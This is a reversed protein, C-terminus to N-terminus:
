EGVDDQAISTKLYEIFIIFTIISPIYFVLKKRRQSETLSKGRQRQQKFPKGGLCTAAPYGKEPYFYVTKEYKKRGSASSHGRRSYTFRKKTERERRKEM